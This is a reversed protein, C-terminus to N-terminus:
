RELPGAGRFQVTAGNADIRFSALAKGSRGDELTIQIEDADLDVSSLDQVPTSFSGWWDRREGSGGSEHLEITINDFPPKGPWEVRARARM